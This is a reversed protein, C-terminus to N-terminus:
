NKITEVKHLFVCLLCRPLAPIPEATNQLKIINILRNRGLMLGKLFTNWQEMVAKDSNGMASSRKEGLYHQASVTLERPSSLRGGPRVRARGGNDACERESCHGDSM